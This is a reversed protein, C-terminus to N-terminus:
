DRIHKPPGCGVPEDFYSAFLPRLHVLPTRLLLLSWKALIFVGQYVGAMEQELKLNTENKTM